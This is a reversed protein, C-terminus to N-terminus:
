GALRSSSTKNLSRSDVPRSQQISDRKKNQRRTSFFIITEERSREKDSYELVYGLVPIAIYRGEGCWVWGFLWGCACVIARLCGHKEEISMDCVCTWARGRVHVCVPVGQTWRIDDFAVVPVVLVRTSYCSFVRRFSLISLEDDSGPVCIIEISIISERNYYLVNRRLLWYHLSM